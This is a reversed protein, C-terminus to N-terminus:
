SICAIVDRDAFDPTVRDLGSFGAGPISVAILNPGELYQSADAKQTATFRQQVGTGVRRAGGFALVGRCLLSSLSTADTPDSQLIVTFCQSADRCRGYWVMERWDDHIRAEATSAISLTAADPLRGVAITGSGNELPSEPDIGLAALRDRALDLMHQLQAAVFHTRAFREGLEQASIWAVRDNNGTGTFLGESFQVPLPGPAPLSSELYASIEAAADDGGPCPKGTGSRSQSALPGAPAILVAIARQHGNAPDTLPTATSTVLDFQGPTDWNLPLPTDPNNKYAGSVAYWLCNGSGDLLKPLGVTRFPFRGVAFAGQSGCTESSGDNDLDPCPLLGMRPNTTHTVPYSLAFGILAARAEALARTTQRHQRSELGTLLRSETLGLALVGVLMFVLMAPLILGRQHKM